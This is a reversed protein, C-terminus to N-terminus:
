RVGMRGAALAGARTLCVATSATRDRSVRGPTSRAWAIGISALHPFEVCQGAAEPVHTAFKTWQMQQIGHPRAENGLSCCKGAGAHEIDTAASSQKRFGQGARTRFHGGYVERRAHDFDRTQM